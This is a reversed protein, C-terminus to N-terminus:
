DGNRGQVKKCAPHEATRAAIASLKPCNAALWEGGPRWTALVWVYLDLASMARGLFYPGKAQAELLALLVKRHADTSARLVQGAGRDKPTGVWREPLDGYTFTPYVAAALFVLWRLFSARHPSTAAPVLAFGKQRDALHLIMAASETLITGNPMVLTPVQGLPNMTKLARSEWGLDSWEVNRVQLPLKTFAFAAEIIMSGGGSAAYLRYPKPM